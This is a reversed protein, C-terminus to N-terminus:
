EVEPQRGDGLDHDTKQGNTKSKERFAVRKKNGLCHTKVNVSIGANAGREM